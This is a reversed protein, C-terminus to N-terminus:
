RRRHNSELSIFIRSDQLDNSRCCLLNGGDNDYIILMFEYSGLTAKWVICAIYNKNIRFQVVPVYENYADIDDENGELVEDEAVFLQSLPLPLPDDSFSEPEDIDYALILPFEAQTFLQLYSKFLAKEDM